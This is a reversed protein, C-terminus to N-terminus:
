ENEIAKYPNRRTWSKPSLNRVFPYLLLRLFQNSIYIASKSKIPIAGITSKFESATRGYIIKTAKKDIGHEISDYLIRNYLSYKKNYDYNLGIFYSYLDKGSFFESSFAVIEENYFYGYLIFEIESHEAFSIYTYLDLSPGSFSSKQHVNNYLTQLKPILIKIDNPSLKKIFLSSSDKLVKRVRKKYKSQISDFYDQFSRWKSDVSLVMDPDIEFVSSMKEFKGDKLASLFHDPLLFFNTKYEIKLHKLLLKFDIENIKEKEFYNSSINSFHSNGFCFFQFNITKLFQKKISFRGSNFYNAIKAGQIKILHGYIVGHNFTIYIPIINEPNYSKEFIELFSSKLFPNEKKLIQNWQTEDLDKVSRSIKFPVNL